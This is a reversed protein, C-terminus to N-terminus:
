QEIVLEKGIMMAITCEVSSNVYQKPYFITLNKLPNFYVIGESVRIWTKNIGVLDYLKDLLAQNKTDDETARFWYIQKPDKIVFNFNAKPLEILELEEFCEQMIKGAFSSKSIADLVSDERIYYLCNYDKGGLNLKNEGGLEELAKIVEASREKNGKIYKKIM